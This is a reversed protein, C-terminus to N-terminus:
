VLQTRELLVNHDMRLAEEEATEDGEAEFVLEIVGDDLLM